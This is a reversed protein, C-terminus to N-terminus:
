FGLTLQDRDKMKKIAKQKGGENVEIVEKNRLYLLFGKVEVFNMQRLVDM